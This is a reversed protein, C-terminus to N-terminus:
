YGRVINLGNEKRYEVARARHPEAYIIMRNESIEVDNILSGESHGFRQCTDVLLGYIRAVEEIINESARSEQRKMGYRNVSVKMNGAVSVLFGVIKQLHTPPLEEKIFNIDVCEQKALEQYIREMDVGRASGYSKM